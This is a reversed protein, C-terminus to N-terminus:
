FRATEGEEPICKIHINFGVWKYRIEDGPELHKQLDNARYWILDNFIILIQTKATKSTVIDYDGTEIQERTCICSKGDFEVRYKM